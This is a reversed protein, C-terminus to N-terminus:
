KAGRERFSPWNCHVTVAGHRLRDQIQAGMRTKAEEGNVVNVTAWTPRQNAYRGDIIRFLMSAQYETLSGFPPLPDSIALIDASMFRRLVQSEDRDGGIADRLEGFLEMGNIWLPKFDWKVVAARLAAMMLHDKGTGSPGFLVLGCGDHSREPMAECFERVRDIASQQRQDYVAYNTLRADAYRSGRSAVLESWRQGREWQRREAVRREREAEEAAIQADSKPPPLPPAALPKATEIPPRMKRANDITAQIAALTAADSRKTEDPPVQTTPSVQVSAPHTQNEM